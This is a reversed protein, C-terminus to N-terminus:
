RDDGVGSFGCLEPRASCCDQVLFDILERAGSVNIAYFIQQRERRSVLLGAREMQGLHASLTSRPTALTSAIEGAALGDPGVEMLVRFTRLRLTHALGSLAEIAEAEKM